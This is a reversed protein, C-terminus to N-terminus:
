ISLLLSIILSIGICGSLYPISIGFRPRIKWTTYANIMILVFSISRIIVVGFLTMLPSATQYPVVFGYFAALELLKFAFLRGAAEEVVYFYEYLMFFLESFTILLYVFSFSLAINRASHGTSLLLLNNYNFLLFVVMPVLVLMMKTSMLEFAVKKEELTRGKTRALLADSPHGITAKIINFLARALTSAFYFLGAQKLGFKVAFLPTIMNSTFLQRSIRLCYDFLRTKIMRRTLGQEAVVKQQPLKKYWRHIFYIFFALALISDFCYPIFIVLPSLSLNLVFYASWVTALYLLFLVLECIIAAKSKFAVHLFHRLISRITESFVLLPIIALYLISQNTPLITSFFYSAVFAVTIIIPALMGLYHGLFYRRFHQQSASFTKYFPAITYATGVDALRVALYLGAFITGIIGYATPDVVKILLVNHIVKLSEFVTSGWLNWTFGNVFRQREHKSLIDKSKTNM